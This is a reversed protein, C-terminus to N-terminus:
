AQDSGSPFKGQLLEQVSPEMATIADQPAQEGLWLPDLGAIIRSEITEWGRLTVPSSVSNNRLYDVGAERYGTPHFENATWYDISAQDTYYKEELPMMLGRQFLDLNKQPDNHYLWFALAEAPHETEGHIATISGVIVTTPQKFSPLVGVGVPVEAEGLSLLNWQGDIVMAVRRTQLQVSTAPLNEAQAPTPAVRHTYILEQLRTFVEIAEPTNLTLTMGDPTTIDGGNSRLLPYWGLWGTPFSIGYQQINDADFEPDTANRGDSDLTLQKATEVFQDWTYASGAASPPVAVGAEEFMERNYFLMVIEAANMTGFTRGVDYYYFTQPLRDNFQPYQSRYDTLDMVRGEAAWTHAPGESMHFLDPLENAAALTNLKTGYDDPVHQQDIRIGPNEDQFKKIVNELATKENLDGWHMFTLKVEQARIHAPRAALLAAALAAGGAGATKLVRRRDIVTDHLKSM